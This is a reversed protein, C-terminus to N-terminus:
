VVKLDAKLPITFTPELDDGSDSLKRVVLHHEQIVETITVTSLNQLSDREEEEEEEEELTTPHLYVRATQPLQLVRTFCLPPCKVDYLKTSFHLPHDDELFWHVTGSCGVGKIGHKKRLGVRQSVQRINFLITDAPVQKKNHDIPNNLVKLAQTYVFDLMFSRTSFKIHCLLHNILQIIIISKHQHSHCITHLRMCRVDITCKM